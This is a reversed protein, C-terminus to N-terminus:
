SPPASQLLARLRRSARQILSPRPLRLAAIVEDQGRLQDVLECIRGAQAAEVAAAASAEIASAALQSSLENLHARLNTAYGPLEVGSVPLGVLHHPLQWPTEPDPVHPPPVVRGRWALGMIQMTQFLLVNFGRAELLRLGEAVYPSALDHFVFAADPTAHPLCAEVDRAPGLGEHDGDIFFLSWPGGGAEALATVGEPSSAAHLTVTAACGCAAIAAELEARRGPEALVPDIVDLSVGALALHVTSWGMWCGIELAKGGAFRLAINHLLVAEDRNLFGMLPHREDVSWAHGVERRLYPWPHNLADGLVRHPFHADPRVVTLGPSVYDGPALSRADVVFPRDDAGTQM